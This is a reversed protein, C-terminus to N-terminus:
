GCATCAHKIVYIRDIFAENNRNNKFTQWEAENSHAM